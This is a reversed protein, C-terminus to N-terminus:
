CLSNSSFILLIDTMKYWSSRLSTLLEKMSALLLFWQIEALFFTFHSWNSHVFFVSVNFITFDVFSLQFVTSCDVPRQQIVM